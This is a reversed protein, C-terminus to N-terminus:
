LVPILAHIGAQLAAFHRHVFAQGNPTQKFKPLRRSSPAGGVKTENSTGVYVINANPWSSNTGQSLALQRPGAVREDTYLSIGFGRPLKISKLPLQLKVAYTPHLLAALCLVELVGLM